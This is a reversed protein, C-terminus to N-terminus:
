GAGLKLAEELRWWLRGDADAHLFPSYDNKMLM